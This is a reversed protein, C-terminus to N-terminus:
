PASNGRVESRLDAIATDWDLFKLTGEAVQRRRQNLVDSHWDPSPLSGPQKSLDAWLAEMTALKEALTMSELPLEVPM